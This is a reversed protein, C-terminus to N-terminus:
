LEADNSLKPPISRPPTNEPTTRIFQLSSWLSWFWAILCLASGIAGIWWYDFRAQNIQETSLSMDFLLQAQRFIFWCLYGISVFFGTLMVGAQIYGIKQAGFITGLGPFALQNVM